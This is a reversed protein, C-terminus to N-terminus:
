TVSYRYHRFSLPYFPLFLTVAIVDYFFNPVANAGKAVSSSKGSCIVFAGAKKGLAGRLLAKRGSIESASNAGGDEGNKGGTTTPPDQMKVSLIVDSDKKGWKKIEERRL